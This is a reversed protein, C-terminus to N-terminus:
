IRADHLECIGAMVGTKVKPLKLTEIEVSEPKRTDEVEVTKKVLDKTLEKNTM